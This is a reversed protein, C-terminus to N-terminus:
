DKSRIVAKLTRTKILSRDGTIFLIFSNSFGEPMKKDAVSQKESFGEM